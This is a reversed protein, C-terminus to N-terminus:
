RFEKIYVCVQHVIEDGMEYESHIWRKKAIRQKKKCVLYM